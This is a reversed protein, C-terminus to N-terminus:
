LGGGRLFGCGEEEQHCRAEEEGRGWRYGAAGKRRRKAGGEGAGHGVFWWSPLANRATGRGDDVVSAGAVCVRAHRATEVEEELKEAEGDSDRHGVARGAEAGLEVM